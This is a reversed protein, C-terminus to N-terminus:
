ITIQKRGYDVVRGVVKMGGSMTWTQMTHSLTNTTDAAEKTKLYDQDARSLEDIQLSILEKDDTRELVVKTPSFAILDADVKYKGSADSWTRAEALDAAVTVMLLAVFTISICPLPNRKM